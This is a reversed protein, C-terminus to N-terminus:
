IRKRSLVCLIMGTWISILGLLVVLSSFVYTLIAFHLATTLTTATIWMDRTKNAVMVPNEEKDLVPNGQEDVQPITRPMESFTKGETTKLTHARIADAQAKLTLPGRVPTGPIAADQPTIINEEAVSTYTFYIGWLGGAVLVIGVGIALVSSVGLLKKM